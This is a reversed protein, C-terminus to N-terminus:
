RKENKLERMLPFIMSPEMNILDIEELRNFEDQLRKIQPEIHGARVKDPSVGLFRSWELLLDHSAIQAKNSEMWQGEETRYNGKMKAFSIIARAAILVFLM